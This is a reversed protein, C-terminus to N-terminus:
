NSLQKALNNLQQKLSMDIVKDDYKITAGGLLEADEEIQTVVTKNTKNKVLEAIKKVESDALKEKSSIKAAVINNDDFYFKELNQLIKPIMTVLHHTELYKSFNAIVADLDKGQKGQIAQYISSALIKAQNKKM